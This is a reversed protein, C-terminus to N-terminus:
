LGIEAAVDRMGMITDTLLDTLEVGLMDAGKQIVERNAGAAFARQKWKKLVSKATLDMVSRSPRVLACATLLGTLEDIAFLVKELDSKPEVDSCIGWGHSVVARIYEETWGHDALIERAKSCHEEPFVQYDIDHVLGIVGWTEEESEYGMKKAMYRMVAEVAKAHNILAEDSTYVKLLSLAEARTPIHTEMTVENHTLHYQNYLQKKLSNEWSAIISILNGGYFHLM